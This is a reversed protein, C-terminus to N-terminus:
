RGSSRPVDNRTSSGGGAGYRRSRVRRRLDGPMLMVLRSRLRAWLHVVRERGSAVSRRDMDVEVGASRCIALGEPLWKGRQIGHRYCVIPRRVSWFEERLGDSAESGLVEFQWATWDGQCLELLTSKQWIAVQTSVRYDTGRPLEGIDAYPTVGSAGYARPALRLCGVRHEMAIKLGRLVAGTDVPATLLFDELFIVVWDAVVRRLM